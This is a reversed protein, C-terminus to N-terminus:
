MQPVTLLSNRAETTGVTADQKNNEQTTEQKHDNTPNQVNTTRHTQKNTTSSFTLFILIIAVQKNKANGRKNHTRREPTSCNQKDSFHRHQHQEIRPRRKRVSPETRVSLSVSALPYKWVSLNHFITTHTPTQKGRHTTLQVLLQIHKESRWRDLAIFPLHPHSHSFLQFHHFRHFLFSNSWNQENLNACSPSM